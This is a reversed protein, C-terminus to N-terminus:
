SLILNITRKFNIPKKVRLDGKQLYTLYISKERIPDQRNEEYLISFMESFLDPDSERYQLAILCAKQFEKERVFERPLEM